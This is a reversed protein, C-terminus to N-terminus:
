VEVGVAASVALRVSEEVPAEPDVTLRHRLVGESAAMLFATRAAASAGGLATLISRVWQEFGERQARLPAAADPDAELFLAYRARTRAAHPGSQAEIM